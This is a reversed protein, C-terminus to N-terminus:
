ITAEKDQGAGQAERGAGRKEGQRKYKGVRQRVLPQAQVRRPTRLAAVQAHQVLESVPEGKLYPSESM